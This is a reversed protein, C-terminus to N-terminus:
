SFPPAEHAYTLRIDNLLNLPSHTRSDSFLVDSNHYVKEEFLDGFHESIAFPDLDSPKPNEFGLLTVSFYGAVGSGALLYMYRGAQYRYKLGGLKEFLHYRLSLSSFGLLHGATTFTFEFFYFAVFELLSTFRHSLFTM